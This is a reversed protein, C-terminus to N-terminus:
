GRSACTTYRRAIRITHGQKTKITVRLTYTGASRGRLDVTITRRRPSLHGIVKGNLKATGSRIARTLSKSVTLKRRSSCAQPTPKATAAPPAPAAPPTPQAPTPAPPAPAPQEPMPAPPDPDPDPEPAVTARLAPATAGDANDDIALRAARPGAAGSATFRVRVVCSAGVAVTQGDCGDAVIAFAGADAGALAVGDVWLPLTGSNTVTLDRESTAGVRLAGFDADAVTRETPPTWLEATATRVGGVVGGAILVHGDPLATLTPLYRQAATSGAARLTGGAPDFVAADTGGGANVVLGRGDPLAAGMSVDSDAATTGAPSWTGGAPDYREVSRVFGAHSIGGAALVTGDGLAVSAMQARATALSGTPSWSNSAPDYLEAGAVFHTSSDSYDGGAVLVRGDALLEEVHNERATAMTGASSWTGTAPDYLEATDVPARLGADGGAVLVKGNPLLTAGHGTRVDAMAGTATWTDASPDYLEAGRSPGGATYGGALLVRGDALRTLSAYHRGALPPAAVAWTGTAPDYIEADAVEGPGSSGGAVLVRGDALLAAQAASRGLAMAGTPAWGSSAASAAPALVLVLACAIAACLKKIFM